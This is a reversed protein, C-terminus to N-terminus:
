PAISLDLLVNTVYRDPTQDIDILPVTAGLIAATNAEWNITIINDLVDGANTAGAAGAAASGIVTVPFAPLPIAAANATAPDTLEVGFTHNGASTIQFGAYTLALTNAPNDVGIFNADEAGMDLQWRTSSAVTLRTDYFAGNPIGTEYDDIRNFVFEINGGDEVNLRLIQNLTLAVPIVARDSVPQCFSNSSFLGLLTVLTLNLSTKNKM